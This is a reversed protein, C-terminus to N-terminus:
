IDESYTVILENNNEFEWWYNKEFDLKQFEEMEDENLKLRITIDEIGIKGTRLAEADLLKDIKEKMTPRYIGLLLQNFIDNALEKTTTSFGGEDDSFYNLLMEIESNKNIEAVLFLNANKSAKLHVSPNNTYRDDIFIYCTSTSKKYLNEICKELEKKSCNKLNISM